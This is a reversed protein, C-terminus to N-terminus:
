SLNLQKELTMFELPKLHRGSIADEKFPVIKGTDIYGHRKYWDVLESRVSIVSMYIANCGAQLAYEEAAKLLQKGIGTGQLHPMVGFMGLYIKSGHQQLNVCAISEHEDNLYKLFINGAQQMVQSVTSEDTRSDGAILAAESTWGKKSAEGRYTINLLDKIATIDVETAIVINKNQFFSM